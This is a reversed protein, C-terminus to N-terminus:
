EISEIPFDERSINEIYAKDAKSIKGEKTEIVESNIIGDMATKVEQTTLEAKPYNLSLTKMKNYDDRFKLKLVRRDM